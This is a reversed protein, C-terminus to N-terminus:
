GFSRLWHGGASIVPSSIAPAAVSAAATSAAAVCEKAQLVAKDLPAVYTKNYKNINAKFLWKVFFPIGEQHLFAKLQTDELKGFYQGRDEWGMGSVIPKTVNKKIEKVSCAKRLHPLFTEEEEYYHENLAEDLLTFANLLNHLDHTEDEVMGSFNDLATLLTAHDATVKQSAFAHKVDSLYPFAIKEENEHHHHLSVVFRSWFNKFATWQSTTLMARGKEVQEIFAILADKIKQQDSILM